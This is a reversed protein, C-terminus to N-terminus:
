SKRRYVQKKIFFARLFEKGYSSPYFFCSVLAKLWFPNKLGWKRFLCGNISGNQRRKEVTVNGFYGPHIHEVLTNVNELEGFKRIKLYADVDEGGTLFTKDDFFGVKKLIEKRYATAKGDPPFPFYEKKTDYDKIKATAIVVNKEKFPAVMKKIFNKDKPICDQHLTIIIEGKAKKIGQNYAKALGGKGDIFLKQLPIEELNQQNLKEKLKNLIKTNPKYLPCILTVKM